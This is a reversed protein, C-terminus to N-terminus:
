FFFLSDSNVCVCVSDSIFYTYLGCKKYHNDIFPSILSSKKKGIQVGGSELIEKPSM